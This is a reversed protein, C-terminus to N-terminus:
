NEENINIKKLLANIIPLKIWKDLNLILIIAVILYFGAICFFGISPDHFMRGIWWAAGVSSFLIIFIGLVAVVIVSAISSLVDSVKDQINLLIIDFRTEAYEKINGIFQEAKNKGEM